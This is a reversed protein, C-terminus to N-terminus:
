IQYIGQIEMENISKDYLIVVMETSFFWQRGSNKRSRIRNVEKDILYQNITSKNWTKVETRVGTESILDHWKAPDDKYNFVDKLFFEGAKGMLTCAYIDNYSRSNGALNNKSTYDSTWINDAEIIAENIIEKTILAKHKTGIM